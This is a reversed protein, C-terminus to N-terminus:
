SLADCKQQGDRYAGKRTDQTCIESEVCLVGGSASTLSACLLVLRPSPLLMQTSLTYTAALRYKKM